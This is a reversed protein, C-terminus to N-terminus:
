NNESLTAIAEAIAPVHLSLIDERKMGHEFEYTLTPISRELGTYTGLCGPTPYGIDDQIEYGTHKQITKAFTMCDGNVNLLPKWSHLSLIFVPKSREIYGCLAQNEPESGPSKGPCYREKHAVPDWDKTPLNRNLDVGNGNTRRKELVGDVNFIPVISLNLKPATKQHYFDILGFAGTVGEHEDGHVGGLILVEPGGREVRYGLLPLGIVSHGFIFTEFHNM